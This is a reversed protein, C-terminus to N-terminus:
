MFNFLNINNLDKYPANRLSKNSVPLLTIALTNYNVEMFDILPKEIRKKEYLNKYVAYKFDEKIEVFDGEKLFFHPSKQVQKNVLVGGHTIAQRIEFVSQILGSNYIIYDLRTNLKNLVTTIQRQKILSRSFRILARLRLLGKFLFRLSKRHQVFFISSLITRKNKSNAWTWKKKRFNLLKEKDWLNIRNQFCIKYKTKINSM